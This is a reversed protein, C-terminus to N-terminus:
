NTNCKSQKAPGLARNNGCLHFCYEVQKPWPTFFSHAQLPHSQPTVLPQPSFIEEGTHGMVSPNYLHGFFVLVGTLFNQELTDPACVVIKEEM